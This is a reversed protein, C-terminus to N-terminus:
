AKEKPAAARELFLQEYWALFEARDEADTLLLDRVPGLEELAAQLRQAEVRHTKWFEPYSKRVEGVLQQAALLTSYASVPDAGARERTKRLLVPLSDYKEGFLRSEALRPEGADLSEHLSRRLHEFAHYLGAFRDFLTDHKGLPRIKGGVELGGADLLRREIFAERQEPSLLSWYQLIEEPMLDLVLSPRGHMGEERVLIRWSADGHRVAMLSSSVLAQKVAAAAEPPCTRWEGGRMDKIGFLERGTLEHVTLRGRLDDDLRYALAEAAWDYRISIDIPTRTSEEDESQPEQEFAPPEEDLPALWWRPRSRDDTLDVLFAAELNGSNARGHAALTLNPSGTIVVEAGDGIWFRYVKAHVRRPAALGTRLRGHREVVRGPLSSWKAVMAVDDYLEQDLLARGAADIPLHVRTERPAMADLLRYLARAEGADFYPSIIELNWEYKALGISELWAAFEDQGCFLRTFFRGGSSNRKPEDRPARRLVFRHVADLTEHPEDDAASRKLYGILSLLDSRFTFRESAADAEPIEEFHGTEVNEWWGSRTLNASLVGVILSETASEGDEGEDEVVLLVLKPHFCGTARRVDIRRFDLQAPSADQSLATRDYYVAVHPLDRLAEELQVRRIREAQHFTQDFLSPLVQLEFFGPDFSFTTFVAARVRRGGVAAQLRDSLVDLRDDPLSGTAM